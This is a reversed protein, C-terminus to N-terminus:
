RAPQVRAEGVAAIGALEVQDEREFPHAVVNGREAAIRRSHRHEALRAAAGLDRCQHACGGRCAQEMAAPRHAALLDGSRAREVGRAAGPGIQRLEARRRVIQQCHRDPRQDLAKGRFIRDEAAADIEPRHEVHFPEGAVGEPGVGIRLPQADRQHEAVRM